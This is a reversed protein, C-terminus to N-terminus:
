FIGFFFLKNEISVYGKADKEVYMHKVLAFEYFIL